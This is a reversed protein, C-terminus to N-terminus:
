LRWRFTLVDAMSLAINEKLATSDFKTRQVGTEKIPRRGVVTVEPIPHVRRTLGGSPQQEAHREQAATRAPAFLVLLLLAAYAPKM